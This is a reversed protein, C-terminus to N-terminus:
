SWRTTILSIIFVAGSIALYLRTDKFNMRDKLHDKIFNILLYYIIILILGNFIYSTPLLSVVYFAEALMFAVILIYIKSKNWEIKYSWLTRMFLLGTVFFCSIIFVWVPWGLLVMFGFGGAYLLFLSLLNVYSYINELAYPQYGASRFVYAIINSLVLNYVIAVLFSFIYLVMANDIILFFVFSGFLLFFPTLFFNVFSGHEKKRAIIITSLVHLVFLFGAVYYTTENNAIWYIFASLVLLPSLYQVTKKLLYM